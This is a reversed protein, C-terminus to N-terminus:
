KLGHVLGCHDNADCTATADSGPIPECPLCPPILDGCVRAGLSGDNRIAVLDDNGCSECCATGHRLQCDDSSTCATVDSERIDEVVCEGNVCNPVFYKRTTEGEPNPCAGCAVDGNGCPSVKAENAKNYAVFDHANVSPGDCVGCCGVAGLVCDTAVKCADYNPNGGPCATQCAELTEYNNKTAGCGGYGIPKCLGTAPDHTWRLFAASCTGLESPGACADDFSGGGSSSGAHAKGGSGSGATPSGGSGADGAEGGNSKFSQGGCASALALAFATGCAARAVSVVQHWSQSM